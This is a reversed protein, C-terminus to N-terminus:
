KITVLPRGRDGFYADPLVKGRIEGIGEFHLDGTTSILPFHTFRTSILRTGILGRNDVM